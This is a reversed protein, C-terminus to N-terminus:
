EGDSARQDIAQADLDHLQCAATEQHESAHQAKHEQPSAVEHLGLGDSVLLRWQTCPSPSTDISQIRSTPSGCQQALDLWRHRLSEARFYM